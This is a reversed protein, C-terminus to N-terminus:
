HQLYRNVMAHKHSLEKDAIVKSDGNIIAIIEPAVTKGSKVKSATLVAHVGARTRQRETLAVPRVVNKGSRKQSICKVAPFATILAHHLIPPPPYTAAARLYSRSYLLSYMLCPTRGM